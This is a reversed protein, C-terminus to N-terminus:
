GQKQRLILKIPTGKPPISETRVEFGQEDGRYPNGYDNAVNVLMAPQWWMAIHAGEEDAMFVERNTLPNVGFYSGSFVWPLAAPSKKTKRDRLLEEVLVRKAKGAVQWEVEIILAAGPQKGPAAAKPEASEECGLLLLAFKLASPRCDLTLLSEYDRGKAEVAIFELIGETLSVKGTAVISKKAGGYVTLGPLEVTTGVRKVDGTAVLSPSEARGPMQGLCLMAVLMAMSLKM